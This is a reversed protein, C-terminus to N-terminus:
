LLKGATKEELRKVSKLLNPSYPHVALAARFARLAAENQDMEELMMGLGALAGFHRPNLSLTIGVDHIAPGYQDLMFFATARANWGEAFDPAHDTLATLHEIAKPLDNAQMAQVGRELLLDMSDSGSSAWIKKIQREASARGEEDESQLELFLADLDATQAFALPPQAVLGALFLIAAVVPTYIKLKLHM